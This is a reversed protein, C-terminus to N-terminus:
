TKRAAGFRDLPLMWPGLHVSGGGGVTEAEVGEALPVAPSTAAGVAGAVREVALPVLLKPTSQAGLRRLVVAAEEAPLAMPFRSAGSFAEVESSRLFGGLAAWFEM